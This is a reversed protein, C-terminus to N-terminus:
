KTLLEPSEHINGIIEVVRLPFNLADYNFSTNTCWRGNIMQVVGVLHDNDYASKKIIDGEYIEKGNKDKLGTFQMIVEQTYCKPASLVGSGVDISGTPIYMYGLDGYERPHWLRVKIERQINHTERM